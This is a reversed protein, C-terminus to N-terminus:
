RKKKQDGHILGFFRSRRSVRASAPEPADRKANRARVAASSTPTIGLEAAYQKLQARLQRLDATYKLKRADEYGITAIKEKVLAIEGVTECYEVFLTVAPAKLVGLTILDPALRTWEELARGKLDAPAKVEAAAYQPEDENLARHGPNGRAEALASPTRKRGGRSM